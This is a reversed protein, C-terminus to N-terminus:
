LMGLDQGPSVLGLFLRKSLRRGQMIRVFQKGTGIVIVSLANLLRRTLVFLVIEVITLHGEVIVIARNGLFAAKHHGRYTTAVM